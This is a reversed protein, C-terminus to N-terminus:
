LTLHEGWDLTGFVLSPVIVHTALHNYVDAEQPFGKVCTACSSYNQGTHLVVHEKLKVLDSFGGGCYCCPYLTADDPNQVTFKNLHNGLLNADYHTLILSCADTGKADMRVADAQTVRHLAHVYLRKYVCISAM